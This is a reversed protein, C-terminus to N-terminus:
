HIVNPSSCFNHIKEDNLKGWGSVEDDCMPRFMRQVTNEFVRFM